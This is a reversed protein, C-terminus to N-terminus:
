KQVLWPQPTDACIPSQSILWRHIQVVAASSHCVRCTSASLIKLCIAIMGSHRPHHVSHYECFSHVAFHFKISIGLLYKIVFLDPISLNNYCSHHSTTTYLEIGIALTDATHFRGLSRSTICWWRESNALNFRCKLQMPLSIFTQLTIKDNFQLKEFFVLYLLQNDTM